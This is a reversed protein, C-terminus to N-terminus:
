RHDLRLRYSGDPQPTAMADLATRIPQDATRLSLDVEYGSSPHWGARGEALLPSGPTSEIRAFAWGDSTPELVARYDGLPVPQPLGGAAGFWVGTAEIDRFGGNRDFTLGVLAVELRGELLLPLEFAERLRSAAISGSGDRLQLAGPRLRLSLAISDEGANWQLRLGLWGTLLAPPQVRWSMRGHDRGGIRVSDARGNWLSGSIGDVTTGAPLSLRADILRWAREAPFLAALALLYAALLTGGLLAARRAAPRRKM